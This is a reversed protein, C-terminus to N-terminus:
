AEVSDVEGRKLIRCVVDPECSKTSLKLCVSYLAQFRRLFSIRKIYINNNSEKQLTDAVILM